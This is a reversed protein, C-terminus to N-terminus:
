FKNEEKWHEYVFSLNDQFDRTVIVIHEARIRVRIEGHFVGVLDALEDAHLRRHFPRLDFDFELVACLPYVFQAEPRRVPIRIMGLVWVMGIMETMQIM